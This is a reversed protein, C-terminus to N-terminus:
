NKDNLYTEIDIVGINKDQDFNQYAELLIKSNYYYDLKTLDNNVFTITLGSNTVREIISNEGTKKKIDIWNEIESYIATNLNVDKDIYVIVKFTESELMNDVLESIRTVKVLYRKSMISTTNYSYLTDTDKNLDYKSFYNKEDIEKDSIILGYNNGKILVALSKLALKDM